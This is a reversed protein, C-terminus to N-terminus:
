VRKPGYEIAADDWELQHDLKKAHIQDNPYEDDEESSYHNNQHDNNESEDDDDSSPGHYKDITNQVNDVNM